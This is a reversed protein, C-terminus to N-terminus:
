LQQIKEMSQDSTYNRKVKSPSPVEQALTYILIHVVPSMQTFLLLFNLISSLSISLYLCVSSLPYMSLHYISIISPYNISPHYVSLLNNYLYFIALFISSLYTSLHSFLSLYLCIISLCLCLHYTPLYIVSTISPHYASLYISSLPYIYIFLLYILPSLSSLYTSLHCLHCISSQCVFVDVCTKVSAVRAPWLRLASSHSGREKWRFGLFTEPYFGRSEGQLFHSLHFLIHSKRCSPTFECHRCSEGAPFVCASSPHVFPLPSLASPPRPTALHGRCSDQAGRRGAAQRGCWWLSSGKAWLSGRLLINVRPHM